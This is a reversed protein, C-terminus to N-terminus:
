SGQPKRWGIVASDIREGTEASWWAEDHWCCYFPLTYTGVHDECLVDFVQGAPREDESPFGQLRVQRTVM